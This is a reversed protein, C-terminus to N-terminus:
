VIDVYVFKEQKYNSQFHIYSALYSKNRYHIVNTSLMVILMARFDNLFKM